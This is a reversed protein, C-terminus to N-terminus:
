KKERREEKTNNHTMWHKEEIERNKYEQVESDIRINKNMSITHQISKSYRKRHIDACKRYQCKGVDDSLSDLMTM